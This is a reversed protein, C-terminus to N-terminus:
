KDVNDDNLFNSMLTIHKKIEDMIIKELKIGQRGAIFNGKHLLINIGINAVGIKM